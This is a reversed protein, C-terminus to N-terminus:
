PITALLHYTLKISGSIESNLKTALTQQLGFLPLSKKESWHSNESWKCKNWNKNAIENWALALMMQQAIGMVSSQM